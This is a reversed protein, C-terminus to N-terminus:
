KWVKLELCIAEELKERGQKTNLVHTPQSVQSMGKLAFLGVVSGARPCETDWNRRGGEVEGMHHGNVLKWM